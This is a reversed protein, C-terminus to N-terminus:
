KTKKKLVELEAEAQKLRREADTLRRSEKAVFGALGATGEKKAYSGLDERVKATAQSNHRSRVEVRAVRQGVTKLGSELSDVEGETVTLRDEHDELVAAQDSIRADHQEVAVWLRRQGATLEGMRRDQRAATIESAAQAQSYGGPYGRSSWITARAGEQTGGLIPMCAQESRGSEICRAYARRMRRDAAADADAQIPSRWQAQAVSPLLLGLLLLIMMTRVYNM